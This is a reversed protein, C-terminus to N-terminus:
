RWDSYKIFHEYSVMHGFKHQYFKQSAYFGLIKKKKSVVSSELEILENSYNRLNRKTIYKNFYYLKDKDKVNNTVIKSIIIHQFHGYEGNPNHTVIKEWKKLNLVSVIDREINTYQRLWKTKKRKNRDPYGLMIYKDNTSDMVRIFEFNRIINKGCTVCLVLYDDKILAGGGWLLEDDPHAVIMLKNIDKVNVKKNIVFIYKNAFYFFLLFIIIFFILIFKNNKIYEM